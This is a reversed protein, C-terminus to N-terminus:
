LEMGDIVGLIGGGFFSGSWVSEFEVNIKSFLSTELVHPSVKISALGSKMSVIKLFVNVPDDLFSAFPSGSSGNLM